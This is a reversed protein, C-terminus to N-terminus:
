KESVIQEQKNNRDVTRESSSIHGCLSSSSCSGGAPMRVGGVGGGGPDGTGARTHATTCSLGTEMGSM